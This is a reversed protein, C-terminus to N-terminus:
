HRFKIMLTFIKSKLRRLPLLARWTIARCRAGRSTLSQEKGARIIGEVIGFIEGRCCEEVANLNGDGMLTFREGNIGIIRHIVYRYKKDREGEIGSRKIGTGEIEEGGERNGEIRALVVDYKRLQTPQALILLDDEGIIFPRMSDGKARLKVRKGQSLMQCVEGLLVKNDIIRRENM